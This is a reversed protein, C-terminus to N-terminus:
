SLLGTLVASMAAAPDHKRNGDGRPLSNGYGMEKLRFALDMGSLLAQLCGTRSMAPERAINGSGRAVKRDLIRHMDPEKQGTPEYDMGM